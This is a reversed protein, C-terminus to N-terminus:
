KEWFVNKGEDHLYIEKYRNLRVNYNNNVVDGTHM